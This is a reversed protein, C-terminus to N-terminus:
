VQEVRQRIGALTRSAIGHVFVPGIVWRAAATGILPWRPGPWEHVIEADSGGESERVTWWVDMGRTIGRIHRYRVERRVPDVSMESVWWTPWRFGPFPRWAAMEVVRMGADRKLERVWRYHSLFEPWQEVESAAAFVRDAPAAMHLRDIIRM